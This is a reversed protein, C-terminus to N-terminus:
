SPNPNTHHQKVTPTTEFVFVELPNIFQNDYEEEPLNDLEARLKEIYQKVKLTFWLYCRNTCERARPVYDISATILTMFPRRNNTLIYIM